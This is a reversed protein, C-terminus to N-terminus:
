ICENPRGIHYGQAFDIGLVKVQNLVEESHVFEAVTKINLGKAFNVITKTIIKMDDNKDINKILSGDIKIFDVQLEVLREFNSYGSGFDDIAIKAGYSKVQEIFSMVEDYNKIGESEIIEFIMWPGIGSKELIDLIFKTTTINTIDLSSINVSFEFPSIKFKAISKQILLRSLKPYAKSSKAINLFEHPSLINGLEDKIRMLSEYKEIKGTKISMISQFYPVVLDNKIANKITKSTKINRKYEKEKNSSKDYLAFSKKSIKAEKYAIQSLKLQNIRGQSAGITMSIDIEAGDYLFKHNQIKESVDGLYATLVKEEIPEFCLMTYIDAELKYLKTQANLLNKQLWQAVQILINDGFRDGYLNNITDFSDINFLIFTTEDEVLLNNKDTLLKLRNPLKTLTDQYLSNRINIKSLVLETIDTALFLVECLEKNNLVPIFSCNLHIEEGDFTLFAKTGEWLQKYKLTELIEQFNNKIFDVLNIGLSKKKTTHMIQCFQRNAYIINFSPDLKAYIGSNEFARLYTSESTQNNVHASTQSKEFFTKLLAIWNKV